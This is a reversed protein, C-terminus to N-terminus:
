RTISNRIDSISQKITKTDNYIASGAVIINAGAKVAKIATELNIGGDVELDINGTSKQTKSMYSDILKRSENIKPIMSEIFGQGGFGPEVTMILVQSVLELVDPLVGSPTNPNLVIGANMNHNLVTQLTKQIDECSEYHILLTDAGADAFESIYRIPEHIMLHVEFDLSTYPRLAKIMQPGFTLNPVFYGDMVDLHFLDAGSEATVAVDNGLNSFDASLISPAIKVTFKDSPNQM